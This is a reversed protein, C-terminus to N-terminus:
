YVRRGSLFKSVWYSENMSSIMVRKGPVPAHIFSGGGVYIGVHGSFAVIDGPRLDARSVYSGVSAQGGSTRPISIGFQRYVYSTFGSCDFGAPTSGGSVYPVGLYRRAEAVISSGMDGNYVAATRTTAPRVTAVPRVKTGELVIKNVPQLIMTESLITANGPVDNTYTVERVVEKEGNSGAHQVKTQGVYISADKKKETQFPVMERTAEKLTYVVDIYPQNDSLNIVDGPALKELDKGPNAKELSRKRGELSRSITYATEGSVVLHTSPTSNAVQVLSKVEEVTYLTEVPVKEEQLIVNQRFGVKVLQANTPLVALKQHYPEMIADLVQQAQEMEAFVFHREGDIVIATGTTYVEVKSMLIQTLSAADSQESDVQVRELQVNQDYSIDSGYSDVLQKQVEDLAVAVTETEQVNGIRDGNFFVEYSFSRDYFYIGLGICATLSLSILLASVRKFGRM